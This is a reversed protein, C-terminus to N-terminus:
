KSYPLVQFIRSADALFAESIPVVDSPAMHEGSVGSFCICNTYLVLLVDSILIFSICCM